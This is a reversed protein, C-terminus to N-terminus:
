ILKRYNNLYPLIM